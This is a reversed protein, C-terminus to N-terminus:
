LNAGKASEKLISLGWHVRLDKVGALHKAFQRNNKCRKGCFCDPLKCAPGRSNHKAILHRVLASYSKMPVRCAPCAVGKRRRPVIATGNKRLKPYENGVNARLTKAARDFALLARKRKLPTNSDALRKLAKRLEYLDAM